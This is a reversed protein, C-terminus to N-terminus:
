LISKIVFYLGALQLGILVFSVVMAEVTAWRLKWWQMTFLNWIVHIVVAWPAVIFTFWLPFNWGM